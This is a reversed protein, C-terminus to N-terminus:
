RVGGDLVRLEPAARSPRGPPTHLGATEAARRVIEEFGKPDVAQMAQGVRIWELLVEAL